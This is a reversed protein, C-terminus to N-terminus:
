SIIKLNKENWFEDYLVLLEMMIMATAGWLKTGIGVDWFPVDVPRGNLEWKEKRINNSNALSKLPRFFAKEVEDENIKMEPKSILNGVVPYIVANSPPVFLPSMEGIVNIQDPTIDVEEHTERLAAQVATEGPDCRGGAFSIQGSHKPLHRSRLTLLIQLDGNEPYLLVMVASKVANESAVLTRYDEKKISPMMIRHAEKGPLQGKLRNKLYDVFESNEKLEQM